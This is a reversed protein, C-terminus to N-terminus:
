ISIDNNRIVQSFESAFPSTYKKMPNRLSGGASALDLSGREWRHCPDIGASVAYACWQKWRRHGAAGNSM